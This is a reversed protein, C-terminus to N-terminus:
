DDVANDDPPSEEEAPPDETVTDGETVADGDATDDAQAVSGNSTNSSSSRRSGSSGGIIGFTKLLYLTLLTGVLLAISLWKLYEWFWHWKTKISTEKLKATSKELKLANNFVNKNLDNLDQTQKLRDKLKNQLMDVQRDVEDTVDEAM